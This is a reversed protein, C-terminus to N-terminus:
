SDSVNLILQLWVNFDGKFGTQKLKNECKRFQCQLWDFM